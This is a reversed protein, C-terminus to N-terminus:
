IKVKVGARLAEVVSAYGQAGGTVSDHGTIAMPVESTTTSNSTRERMSLALNWDRSTRTWTKRCTLCKIVRLGDIYTHDSINHDMIPSRVRGGKAHSCQDQRRRIRMRIADHEAATRTFYQPVYKHLKLQLCLKYYEIDNLIGHYTRLLNFRITRIVRRFLMRKLNVSM